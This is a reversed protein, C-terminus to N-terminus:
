NSVAALRSALPEYLGRGLATLAPNNRLPIDLSAISANMEHEYLDVYAAVSGGSARIFEYFLRVNALAHYAMLIRSLPRNKRIPPSWYLTADTGDDVPGVRQLMYFYQHACEHILIEAIDMRGLGHSAHIIGPVDEGSGSVVRYPDDVSCVVIGHLVREIWPLYNPANGAVADVGAAFTDVMSADLASVPLVNEFIQEGDENLPLASLPLLYISNNPGIEPLYDGGITTWLGTQANRVGNIEIGDTTRINVCTSSDEDHVRIEEAFHVLATGLRITAPRTVVSWSGRHGNETLRLALRAAVESPDLKGSKLALQAQGFSIDWVTRLSVPTHTWKLVFEVLGNSVRALDERYNTVLWTAIARGYTTVVTEFVSEDPPEQPCSFQWAWHTM